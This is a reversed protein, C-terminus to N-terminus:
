NSPLTHAGGNGSSTATRKGRDRTELERQLRSVTGRLEKADETITGNEIQLREIVSKYEQSIANFQEEMVSVRHHSDLYLSGVIKAFEEYTWAKEHPLQDADVAEIPVQTPGPMQPPLIPPGQLDNM